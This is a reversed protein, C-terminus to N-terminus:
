RRTATVSRVGPEARCGSVCCREPAPDLATEVDHCGLGDCVGAVYELNLGCVLATQEQAVATSPATACSSPAGSWARSTAGRRWRTPSAVCTRAPERPTTLVSGRARPARWPPRSPPSRSGRPRRRPSPRPWSAASCTTSAPPCRCPWSATRAGTSSPRAAGIRAGHPRHAPPVGGRAPGGRRAQRPPVQGHAPRRAGASGGARPEGADEAGVRRRVACPAGARVAGRRGPLDPESARDDRANRFSLPRSKLVDVPTGDSVYRDSLFAM